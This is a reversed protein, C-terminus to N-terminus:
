AMGQIAFAGFVFMLLFHMLRLQEIALVSWTWGFLTRWATSRSVWAFLGVRSLISLAFAVYVLVYHTRRRQARGRGRRPRSRAGPWARPVGLALHSRRAPAPRSASWDPTRLHSCLTQSFGGPLVLVDNPLSSRSPSRGAPAHRAAAPQVAISPTGSQCRERGQFSSRDAEEGTNPM